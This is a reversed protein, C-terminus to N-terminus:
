QEDRESARVAQAQITFSTMGPVVPTWYADQYTVQVTVPDYRRCPTNACSAQVTARDSVTGINTDLVVNATDVARETDGGYIAAQHAAARVSQSVAYNALLFQFVMMLGFVM